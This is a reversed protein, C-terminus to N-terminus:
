RIDDRGDLKRRRFRPSTSGRHLGPPETADHDHITAVVVYPKSQRLGQVRAFGTFDPDVKEIWLRGKRMDPNARRKPQPLAPDDTLTEDLSDLRFGGQRFLQDWCVRAM